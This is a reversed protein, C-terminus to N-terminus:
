LCYLFEAMYKEYICVCFETAPAPGSLHSLQYVKRQGGSLCLQMGTVGTFSAPFSQSCLAPRESAHRTAQAEMGWNM